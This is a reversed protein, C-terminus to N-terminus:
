RHKGKAVKYLLSTHNSNGGDNLSISSRLRKSDYHSIVSSFQYM